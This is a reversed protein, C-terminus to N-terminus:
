GRRIAAVLEVKGDAGGLRITEGDPELLAASGHTSVAAIRLPHPLRLRVRTERRDARSPLDVTVRVAHPTRVLSFSVPGFSTPMDQVVIRRGSALWAPPTAFALELGRAGGDGATTEHVLMLRLTELFAANSTGNPPLFMTRYRQEDLPTVSAAEGAVFTGRTMGAALQGYLSLVLQDPRDNDALFRSMSLGYVQDTGSTPFPVDGYLAYSGARVLGLLRSGHGLMYALIDRAQGGHPEFLGSALAYPMVLNWYSGARSASLADYPREGDLLRVPVFLTGDSLREQSARVARRLAAGLRGALSRCRAALEPRGGEAWAAGMLRLGQWVTAQAHLGVVPEAVDQSFRERPLLGTSSADIQRGLARVYGALQPTVEDLFARDRFLRDHLGVGALKAGLKWDPFPTPRKRLSTRLIEREVDAFGYAGIVGAAAIGDATALEQYPNGVSYRWTLVLNQILLNRIADMVRREPVAIQAGEDLRGLWYGRLGARAAEYTARDIPRLRDTSNANLWAAYVTRRGGATVPYALRRAHTSPAFLITAPGPSLHADAAIRVFSALRGAAPLPAAFSEQRYRVGSADVYATQLIPLYGGALRPHALRALCSGFRERGGRGVGVTLSPGQWRQSVIQSGDAVHLPVSGSGQAGAPWGFALYHAGSDTLPRGAGARALWLPTLYRSAGDFTPVAGRACCPTAGCTM